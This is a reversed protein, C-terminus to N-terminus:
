KGIGRRGEGRETGKKRGDKMEAQRHNKKKEKKAMNVKVEAVFLKDGFSFIVVPLGLGLGKFVM